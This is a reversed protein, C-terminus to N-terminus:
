KQNRGKKVIRDFHEIAAQKQSETANQFKKEIEEDEEMTDVPEAKVSGYHATLTSNLAQVFAQLFNTDLILSHKAEYSYRWEEFADSILFLQNEWVQFDRFAPAREMSRNIVELAFDDPLLMFLYLLSHVNSYEIGNETLIAKLSLEAAFAGNVVMPIVFTLDKAEANMACLNIYTNLFSGAQYRLKLTDM